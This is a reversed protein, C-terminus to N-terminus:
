ALQVGGAVMCCLCAGASSTPASPRAASCPAACRRSASWASSRWTPCPRSRPQTSTLSSSCPPPTRLPLAGPQCPAVPSSARLPHLNSPHALLPLAAPAAPCRGGVWRCCFGFASALMCCGGSPVQITGLDESSEDLCTGVFDFSLCQLALHIAQTPPRRTPCPRPQSLTLMPWPLSALPAGGRACIGNYPYFAM